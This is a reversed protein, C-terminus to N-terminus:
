LEDPNLELTQGSHHEALAESALKSLVEQSSAFLQDWKKGSRLEALVWDALADQEKPSLKSAETFAQELRTTM